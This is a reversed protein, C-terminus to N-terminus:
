FLLVARFTGAWTPDINVGGAPHPIYSIAPEAFIDKMIQAQYYAQLMLETNQTFTQQNLWSLAMGLGMSDNQRHPMLGFATFGAGVYKNMPLVNSNNWGFQYFMSIGSSNEDPNKYWLRQSGFLYAGTADNGTLPGSAILGSQNWAGVGVNGPKDEKGVLWDCGIEGVNFYNGNFSLGKLGTQVGQALNSDFIGYSAYWNKTPTFNTTLGYASNYYGPMVGLMTPNVFLPTFILGSVAPIFLKDQSLPVPKIVNDFDYTPVLKGVRVNLKNHFLVQRYWLQYLESRNLPPPGPLSNYGQVSGAQVNTPAGNFQLFQTGFLGGKWAGFKETDITMDFLFLSNETWTEANPIGGAMLANTDGVWAGTFRIGHDNKIKLKKLFFDQLDGTGATTNVAAPNSAISTTQTRTIQKPADEAFVTSTAAINLCFLYAIFRTAILWVFSGDIAKKM